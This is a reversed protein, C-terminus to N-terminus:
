KTYKDIKTYTELPTNCEIKLLEKLFNPTLSKDVHVFNYNNCPTVGFGAEAVRNFATKKTAKQVFTDTILKSVENKGRFSQSNNAIQSIQIINM